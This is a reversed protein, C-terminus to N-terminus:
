LLLSKNNGAIDFEVYSNDKAICLDYYIYTDNNGYINITACVYDMAFDTYFSQFMIQKGDPLVVVIYEDPDLYVQGDGEGYSSGTHSANYNLGLENVLYDLIAATLENPTKTYVKSFHYYDPEDYEDEYDLEFNYLTLPFELPGGTYYDNDPYTPTSPQEPIEEDPTPDIKAYVIKRDLANYSEHSKHYVVVNPFGAKDSRIFDDYNEGAKLLKIYKM